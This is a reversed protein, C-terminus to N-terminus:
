SIASTIIDMVQSVWAGQDSTTMYWTHNARMHNLSLSGFFNYLQVQTSLHETGDSATDPNDFKLVLEWSFDGDETQASQSNVWPLLSILSRSFTRDQLEKLLSDFAPDDPELVLEKSRGGSPVVEYYVSISSCQSLDVEPCLQCLTMPRTYWIAGGGVLLVAVVLLLVILSKKKM